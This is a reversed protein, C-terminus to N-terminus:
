ALTLHRQPEWIFYQFGGGRFYKEPLTEQQIQEVNRRIWTFADSVRSKLCQVPTKVVYVRVLGQESPLALTEQRSSPDTFWNGRPRQSKPENKPRFCKFRRNSHAVLREVPGRFDIAQMLESLKIVDGRPLSWPSPRTVKQMLIPRPICDQYFDLAVGMATRSVGPTVEWGTFALFEDLTIRRHIPLQRREPM